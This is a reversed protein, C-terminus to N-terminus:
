GMRDRGAAYRLTGRSFLGGESGGGSDTLITKAHKELKVMDLFSVPDIFQLNEVEPLTKNIGLDAIKNKTRPHVPFLVPFNVKGFANLINLLRDPHDVNEARHVTALMYERPCLGLDQLITSEREAIDGFVIAADYMVDGIRAVVPTQSDNKGYHNKSIGENKLNDVSARTPCFLFTSVHDTLIRNIEEPMTKNFSRLGAEVHAVPIHLKAAALAGALTSNTDGYVLVCDPKRDIFQKELDILMRGTMEGHGASNVNLNVVPEPIGMDKFFIESMAEDFHQGTHVIEEIINPTKLREHHKVIARSVMAAKIFQPRAGVVTVIKIQDSVM